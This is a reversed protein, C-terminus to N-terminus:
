KGHMIRYEVPTMGSLSGKIRGENYWRIYEDLKRMFHKPYKFDSGDSFETKLRGFFSEAPSNDICNGKRSMSQTCGTKNLLYHWRHNQYQFGQDTHIIPKHRNLEPLVDFLMELVMNMNPSKGIRWSVVEGNFLDVLPSLYIRTDGINFQTIDSVLKEMPRSAKFDRKLVNDAIKGVTGRYSNYVRKRRCKARLGEERMIKAVTKRDLSIGHNREIAYTVRRYGYASKSDEFIQKIIVREDAYRDVKPHTTRYYFTSVPIDLYFLIDKLPFDNRLSAVVTM